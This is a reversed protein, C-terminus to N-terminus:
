LDPGVGVLEDGLQSRRDGGRLRALPLPLDGGGLAGVSQPKGLRHERAPLQIVRGTHEIAQQALGAVTALQEGLAVQQAPADCRAHAIWQGGLALEPARQLEPRRALDGLRLALFGGRQLRRALGRPDPPRRRTCDGGPSAAAFWGARM